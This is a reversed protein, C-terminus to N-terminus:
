NTGKKHKNVKILLMTIALMILFSFASFGVRYMNSIYIQHDLIARNELTKNSYWNAFAKAQEFRDFHFASGILLAAALEIVILIILSKKM